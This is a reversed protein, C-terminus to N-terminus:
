RTTCAGAVPARVRRAARRPSLAPEEIPAVVTLAGHLTRLTIPTSGLDNGDARAPLPHVSSIRVRVSRYTSIRPASRRRGFAITALYRLLGWTTFGRFVRVDFRGDDLRAAPAVTMGVGLYPGNSVTVMLARTRVEQDDLRIVMRAPRYRLAVWVTRPVSSWDGRDVRAAERFIAAHLGVSASEYFILRGTPADEVEGVDITRVQGTVLIAAAAELDRPIGLMRAVNMVSGLPLVGLATDTWLLEGAVLDVTGDGGAAVVVDIGREVAARAAARAEEDDRAQVLDDGLGYRSMVSRLDEVSAPNTVIGAKAGAATHHIVRYRRTPRAATTAAATPDPTVRSNDM